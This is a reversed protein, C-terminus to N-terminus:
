TKCHCMEISALRFPINCHLVQGRNGELVTHAAPPLIFTTALVYLGLTAVTLRLSQAAAQPSRLSARTKRYADRITALCWVTAASLMLWAVLVSYSVYYFTLGFAPFKSGKAIAVGVSLLVLLVILIAYSKKKAHVWLYRASVILCALSLGSWVFILIISWALERGM